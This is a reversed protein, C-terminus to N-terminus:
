FASEPLRLQRIHASVRDTEGRGVDYPVPPGPVTTSMRVFFLWCVVAKWVGLLDAIFGPYCQGIEQFQTPRTCM